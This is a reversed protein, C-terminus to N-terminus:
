YIYPLPGYVLQEGCSGVACWSGQKDEGPSAGLLLPQWSMSPANLLCSLCLCLAQSPPGLHALHSLPGVTSLSNYYVAVTARLLTPCLCFGECVLQKM